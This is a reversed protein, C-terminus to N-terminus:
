EVKWYDMEIHLVREEVAFAIEDDSFRRQMKRIFSFGQHYSTNGLLINTM